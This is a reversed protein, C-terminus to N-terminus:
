LDSASYRWKTAAIKQVLARENDGLTRTGTTGDTGELVDTTIAISLDGGGDNDIAVWAGIDYAVSANAPITYTEGAGGSQKAITKGADDILFTYNGNQINLPSIGPNLNIDVGFEDKYRLADDAVDVYIQGRNSLDAQVGNNNFLYLSGLIEVNTQISLNQWASGTRNASLLTPGNFGGDTVSQINFGSFNSMRFDTVKEDLAAGSTNLRLIAASASRLDLRGNGEFRIDTAEIWAVTSTDWKLAADDVTGNALGGGGSGQAPSVILAVQTNNTPASGQGEITVIPFTYVSAAKSPTGVQVIVFQSADSQVQVYLLDDAAILDLFATMDTGGDNTEHFYMETANDIILDDFQMQGTSPNSTVATRYRWIGFGVFGGGGGGGISGDEVGRRWKSQERLIDVAAM